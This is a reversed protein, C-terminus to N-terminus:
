QNKSVEFTHVQTDHKPIPMKYGLRLGLEKKISERISELNHANSFKNGPRTIGACIWLFVRSSVWRYIPKGNKMEMDLPCEESKCSYKRQRFQAANEDTRRIVRLYHYIYNEVTSPSIGMKSAITHPHWFGNPAKELGGQGLGKLLEEFKDVLTDPVEQVKNLIVRQISNIDNRKPQIKPKPEFRKKAKRVKM